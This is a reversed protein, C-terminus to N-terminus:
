ACDDTRPPEPRNRVPRAPPGFILTIVPGIGIGVNTWWGGGVSGFVGLEPTTSGYIGGQLVPGIVAFVDVNLGTALTIDSGTSVTTLGVPVTAPRLVNISPRIQSVTFPERLFGVDPQFKTALDISAKLGAIEAPAARGRTLRPGLPICKQLNLKDLQRLDASIRNM